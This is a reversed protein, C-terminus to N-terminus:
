DVPYSTPLGFTTFDIVDLTVFEQYFPTSTVLGAESLLQPTAVPVDKSRDTPFQPDAVKIEVRGNPATADKSNFGSSAAELTFGILKKAKNRFYKFKFTLTNKFTLNGEVDWHPETQYDDFMACFKPAPLGALTVARSNISGLDQLRGMNPSYEQVTISMMPASITEVPLPDYPDGATNAVLDGSVKDRDVVRTYSWKGLKVEPRYTGTDPDDNDSSDFGAKTTYTLEFAWTKGTDDEHVDAEIGANLFLLKGSRHQQGKKFGSDSVADDVNEVVEDFEVLVSENQTIGDADISGGRGSKLFFTNLVQAM